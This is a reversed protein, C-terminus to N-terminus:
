LVPLKKKPTGAPRIVNITLCDESLTFTQGYQMCSNGYATADREGDFSEDYSEPWKFRRSGTPPKAYPIGLFADQDWSALHSGVYTGNLTKATPASSNTSACLAAAAFLLIRGLFITAM